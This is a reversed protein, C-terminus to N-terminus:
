RRVVEQLYGESRIAGLGRYDELWKELQTPDLTSVRTALREGDLECVRVSTAPSELYDLLADSQTGLIVPHRTAEREFFGVVRALTAPHLHTEPEDFALLSREARGMESRRLRFLAVFALYALQREGPKTSM